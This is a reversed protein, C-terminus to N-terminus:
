AVTFKRGNKREKAVKGKCGRLTGATEEPEASETHAKQECARLTEATQQRADLRKKVCSCLKQRKKRNRM